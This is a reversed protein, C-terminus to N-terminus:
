KADIKALAGTVESWVQACEVANKTNFIELTTGVPATWFKTYMSPPDTFLDWFLPTWLRFLVFGDFLSVDDPHLDLLYKGGLHTVPVRVVQISLNWGWEFLIHGVFDARATLYETLDTRATVVAHHDLNSIRALEWFTPAARPPLWVGHPGMVRTVEEHYATWWSTLWAAAEEQSTVVLGPHGVLIVWGHVLGAVVGLVTILCGLWGVPIWLPHEGFTWGGMARRRALGAVGTAPAMLGVLHLLVMWGPPPIFTGGPYIVVYGVPAVLLTAGAWLTAGVLGAMVVRRIM